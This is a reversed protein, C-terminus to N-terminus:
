VSWTGVSASSGRGHAYRARSLAPTLHIWVSASSGTLTALAPSTPALLIRLLIITSIRIFFASNQPLLNLNLVFYAGREWEYSCRDIRRIGVEGTSSIRLSAADM